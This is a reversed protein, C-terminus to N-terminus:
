NSESIIGRILENCRKYIEESSNYKLPCIKPFSNLILEIKERRMDYNAVYNLFILQSACTLTKFQIYKHRQMLNADDSFPQVMNLIQNSEQMVKELVSDVTVTGPLRFADSGSCPVLKILSQPLVYCPSIDPQFFAVLLHEAGSILKSGLVRCVFVPGNPAPLAALAGVRLEAAARCARPFGVAAAPMVPVAPASLACLGDATSRSRSPLPRPAEANTREMYKARFKLPLAGIATLISPASGTQRAQSRRAGKLAAGAVINLYQENAALAIEATPVHADSLSRKFRHVFARIQPLPRSSCNALLMKDKQQGLRVISRIGEVEDHTFPAFM